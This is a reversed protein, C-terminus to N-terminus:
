DKIHEAVTITFGSPSIFMASKSSGTNRADAETSTFGKATLLGRVEDYNDVNMRISVMDQPVDAKVIDIHNGESDKM